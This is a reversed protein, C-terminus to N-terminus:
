HLLAHATRLRRALAEEEAVLERQLRGILSSPHPTSPQKSRRESWMDIERCITRIVDYTAYTNAMVTASLVSRLAHLEELSMAGQIEMWLHTSPKSPPSHNRSPPTPSPCEAVAINKRPPITSPLPCPTREADRLTRAVSCWEGWARRLAPRAPASCVPRRHCCTRACPRLQSLATFKEPFEPDHMNVVFTSPLVVHDVDVLPMGDLHPLSLMETVQRLNSITHRVISKHLLTDLQHRGIVEPVESEDVGILAHAEPLGHKKMFAVWERLSRLDDEPPPLARVAAGRASRSASAFGRVPLISFLPSLHDFFSGLRVDSGSTVFTRLALRVTIFLQMRLMAMVSISKFTLPADRLRLHRGDGTIFKLDAKSKSAREITAFLANERGTATDTCVGASRLRDRVKADPVFYRAM